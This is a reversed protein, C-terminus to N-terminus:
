IILLNNSSTQLKEKSLHRQKASRLMQLASRLWARETTHRHGISTLSDVNEHLIATSRGLRRVATKADCPITTQFCCVATKPPFWHRLLWHHQPHTLQLLGCGLRSKRSPASGLYERRLSFGCVLAEEVLARLRLLDEVLMPDKACHGSWLRSM